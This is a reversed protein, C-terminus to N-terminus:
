EVTVSSITVTQFGTSVYTTLGIWIAFVTSGTIGDVKGAKVDGLTYVCSSMCRKGDIYSFTVQTSLTILSPSSVEVTSFSAGKFSTRLGESTWTGYQGNGANDFWLRVIYSGTGTISINDLAGVTGADYNTFGATIHCTGSDEMTLIVTGSYLQEGVVYGGGGCSIPTNFNFGYQGSYPARHAEQGGLPGWRADWYSVVPTTSTSGYSIRGVGVLLFSSVVLISIVSLVIAPRSRSM